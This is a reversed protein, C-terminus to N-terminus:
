TMIFCDVVTVSMLFCLPLYSYWKCNKSWTALRSVDPYVRTYVFPMILDLIMEQPM